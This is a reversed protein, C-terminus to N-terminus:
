HYPSWRSRCREIRRCRWIHILSLEEVTSNSSQLFAPGLANWNCSIINFLSLIHHVYRTMLHTVRRVKQVVWMTHGVILYITLTCECVSWLGSKLLSWYTAKTMEGGIWQGWCVSPWQWQRRTFQTTDRFPLNELDSVPSPFTYLQLYDICRSLLLRAWIAYMYAQIFITTMYQVHIQHAM